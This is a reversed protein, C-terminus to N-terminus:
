GELQASFERTANKNRHNDGALIVNRGSRRARHATQQDHRSTIKGRMSRSLQSRRIDSVAPDSTRRRRSFTHETTNGVNDRNPCGYRKHAKSFRKRERTGRRTYHTASLISFRYSSLGLDINGAFRAIGEGRLPFSYRTERQFFPHGSYNRFDVQLPPTIINVLWPTKM